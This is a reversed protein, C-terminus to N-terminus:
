QINYFILHTRNEKLQQKYVKLAELFKKQQKFNSALLDQISFKFQDFQIIKKCINISQEYKNEFYFSFAKGYLIEKEKSLNENKELLINLKDNQQTKIYISILNHIISLRGPSLNLSQRFKSEASDLNEQELFKIGENFLAKAEELNKDVM